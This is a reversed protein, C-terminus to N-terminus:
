RASVGDRDLSRVWALDTTAQVATQEPTRDTYQATLCIPGHYSIRRLVDMILPWDALGQDGADFWSRYRFPSDDSVRRYEANKLNVLGLRDGCQELTYAPNEGALADHAADWVIRFQPALDKILEHVGLVTSVFAGHHPQIGIEVGYRSCLPALADFRTRLRDVSARYGQAGIPAMIRIMPVGAEACAALMPETPESAISIVQVGHGALRHVFDALRAGTTDPRLYAGDRVPVEAADFGMGTILPGLEDAALGAWPKSFIAWTRAAPGPTSKPSM